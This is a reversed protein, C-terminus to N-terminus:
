LYANLIRLEDYDSVEKRAYFYRVWHVLYYWFLVCDDTNANTQNSDARCLIIHRHFIYYIFICIFSKDVDSNKAHLSSSKASFYSPGVVPEVCLQM